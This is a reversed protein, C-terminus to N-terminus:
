RIWCIHYCHPCVYHDWGYPVWATGGCNWCTYIGGNSSGHGSVESAPPKALGPTVKANELSGTPKQTKKPAEAM